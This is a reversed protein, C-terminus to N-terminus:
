KMHQTAFQYLILGRRYVRLLMEADEITICAAPIKTVGDQYNQMGTHPLGISFPAISRVLAAVAGKRAAESASERRYAVTVGYSVWTPVFVVIKGKVLADDLSRFETFNEVVIVDATIGAPPPTGVSSGLGLIAIKQIHPLILDATELGREWRPVLANETHVNELEVSKLKNVLFDIADDLNKSGTMRPGFKDVFEAM